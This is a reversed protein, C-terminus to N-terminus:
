LMVSLDVFYEADTPAFSLVPPVFFYDFVLVSFIASAIAPGHGLRAAALAVGALFIMVINANALGALHAGWGALGCLAVIGCAVFYPKGLVWFRRGSSHKLGLGRGKSM